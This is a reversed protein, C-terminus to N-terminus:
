KVKGKGFLIVGLPNVTADEIYLGTTVQTERETALECARESSKASGCYLMRDSHYAWVSYAHAHDAFDVKWSPADRTIQALILDSNPESDM